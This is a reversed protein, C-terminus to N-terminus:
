VRYEKMSLLEKEMDFNKRYGGTFVQM